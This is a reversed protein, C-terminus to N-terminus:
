TKNNQEWTVIIQNVWCCFPATSLVPSNKVYKQSAPRRWIKSQRRGRKSTDVTKQILLNASTLIVQRFSCSKKSNSKLNKSINQDTKQVPNYIRRVIKSWGAIKSGFFPTGLFIMIKIHLAISCISDGETAANGGYVVQVLVLGGLSHGIVIIPRDALTFMECQCCWLSLESDKHFIDSCRVTSTQKRACDILKCLQRADDALSGQTCKTQHNDHVRVSWLGVPLASPLFLAYILKSINPRRSLWGRQNHNHFSPWSDIDNVHFRFSAVFSWWFWILRCKSMCYTRSYRFLM